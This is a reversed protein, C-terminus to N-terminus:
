QVGNEMAALYEPDTLNLIREALMEAQERNVPMYFGGDMTDSQLGIGISAVQEGSSLTMVGLNMFNGQHMPVPGKPTQLDFGGLYDATTQHEVFDATKKYDPPM